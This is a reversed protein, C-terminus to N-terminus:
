SLGTDMACFHEHPTSSRRHQKNAYMLRDVAALLTERDSGLRPQATLVGVSASVRGPLDAVQLSGLADQVREAVRTAGLRGAQPLVMLFEDGGLRGVADGARAVRELVGAVATLVLDGARHGFQDNVEKFRDLDMALLSLPTRDRRCRALANDLEALLGRRNLIRTLEDHYSLSALAQLRNASRWLAKLRLRLEEPAFPIPLCDSVGLEFAPTVLEIRSVLAFVPVDRTESHAQLQAVFERLEKSPDLVAMVITPQELRMDRQAVEPTPAELTHMGLPAVL